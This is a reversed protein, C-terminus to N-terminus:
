QLTRNVMLVILSINETTPVYYYLLQLTKM